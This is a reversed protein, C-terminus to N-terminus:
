TRHIGGRISPPLYSTYKCNMKCWILRITENLFLPYLLLKGTTQFFLFNRFLILTVLMYATFAFGPLWRSRGRLYMLNCVLYFITFIFAFSGCVYFVLPFLGPIILRSVKRRASLSVLIWAMIIVFGLLHYAQFDYRVQFLMLTGSTLVILLPIVTMSAKLAKLIGLMILGSATILVSIIIAGTVTAEYFQTLFSGAYVLLGGPRTVFKGLYEGSFIFLTNSEQHILLGRGFFYFYFTGIIFLLSLAAYVASGGTVTEAKSSNDKVTSKRSM